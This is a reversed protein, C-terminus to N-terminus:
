INTPSCTLHHSHSRDLGIVTESLVALLMPNYLTGGPDIYGVMM